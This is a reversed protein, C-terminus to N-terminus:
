RNTVNVSVHKENWVDSFFNATQLATRRVHRPVGKVGLFKRSVPVLRRLHDIEVFSRINHWAFNIRFSIRKTKDVSNFIVRAHVNRSLFNEHLFGHLHRIFLDSGLYTSRSKCGDVMFITRATPRAFSLFQSTVGSVAAVKTTDKEVSGDDHGFVDLM